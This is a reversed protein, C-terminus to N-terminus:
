EKGVEVTDASLFLGSKSVFSNTSGPNETKSIIGMALVEVKASEIIKGGLDCIIKAQEISMQENKDTNPDNLSKVREIADFLHSRLDNLTQRQKAM